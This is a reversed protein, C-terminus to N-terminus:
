ILITTRVPFTKSVKIEVDSVFIRYEIQFYLTELFLMLLKERILSTTERAQYDRLKAERSIIISAKWQRQSM